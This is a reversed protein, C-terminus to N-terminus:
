EMRKIKMVSKRLSQLGKWYYWWMGENGFMRDSRDYIGNLNSYGCDERHWWASKQYEACNGPWNDNNRDYTTFMTNNHIELSDGATGNYSGITLKYNSTVDGIEFADYEAFARSRDFAELEVRLIWHGSQTLEHIRRLGAWYEGEPSGFGNEYDEWGRYFNISGDYRQQFKIWGNEDMKTDCYSNFDTSALNSCDRPGDQLLLIQMDIDQQRTIATTLNDMVADMGQFNISQNGQVYTVMSNNRSASLQMDLLEFNKEQQQLILPLSHSINDLSEQQNELVDVVNNMTASMNQAQKNQMQLIAVVQNFTNAMQNQTEAIQTLTQQQKAMMEMSKNFNDQYAESMNVLLEYVQPTGFTKATSTFPPSQCNTVDLMIITGFCVLVIMSVSIAM